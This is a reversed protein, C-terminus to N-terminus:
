WNNLKVNFQETAAAIKLRFGLGAIGIFLMIMGTIGIVLATSLGSLITLAVTLASLVLFFVPLLVFSRSRVVLGYILLALSQFFIISFFTFDHRDVMQIYTTSLLVMQALIGTIFAVWKHQSKEASRVVLYHMIIGLLAAGMSYYQPEKVDLTWLALLYACFYLSNAPYGLWVNRKRFAELAYISACVSVAIISVPTDQGLWFAYLASIWTLAASSNRWPIGYSYARTNKRDLAAWAVYFALALGSLAAALYQTGLRAVPHMLGMTFLAAAFYSLWPRQDLLSYAIWYIGYVLFLWFIRQDSKNPDLLAVWLHVVAATVGVALSGVQWSFSLKSKRLIWHASLLLIAPIFFYIEPRLLFPEPGNNWLTYQWSYALYFSLLSLVSFVWRKGRSGLYAYILGTAALYLIGSREDPQIAKAFPVIAFIFPVAALLFLSYYKAKPFKVRLVEASITLIAAWVWLILLHLDTDELDLWINAFLTPIGALTAAFPIQWWWRRGLRLTFLDSVLYFGAGAAWLIGAYAWDRATPIVESAGDLTTFLLITASLFLISAMALQTEWFLYARLSRAPEWNKLEESVLLACLGYIGLLLLVLHTQHAAGWAFLYLAYGAIPFTVLLYLRSRYLYVGFALFLGTLLWTAGWFYDELFPLAPRTSILARADIPILFCGAAYLVFSALPIRKKLYFAAGFFIATLATLVPVRAVEVLAALIFAAVVMFFAGLYLAIKLTTDSLLIQGLSPQGRGLPHGASAASKSPQPLAPSLSYRNRLVQATEVPLIGDKELGTIENLFFNRGNATAATFSRCVPAYSESRLIDMARARVSLSSDHIALRELIRALDATAPFAPLDDLAQFRVQESDQHLDHIVRELPNSSEM